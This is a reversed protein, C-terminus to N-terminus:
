AEKCADAMGVLVRLISRAANEGRGRDGAKIKSDSISDFMELQRRPLEPPTSMAQDPTPPLKSLVRRIM